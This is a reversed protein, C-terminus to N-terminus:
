AHGSVVVLSSSAGPCRRGIVPWATGDASSLIELGGPAGAGAATAPPHARCDWNWGGLGIYDLCLEVIVEEKVTSPPGLSLKLPTQPWAGGGGGRQIARVVGAGNTIMRSPDGAVGLRMDVWAIAPVRNCSCSHIAQLGFHIRVM